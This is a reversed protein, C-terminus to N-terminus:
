LIKKKRPKPHFISNFVTPFRDCRSSRLWNRVDPNMWELLKVITEYRQWLELPQKNIPEHHAIRNRLQRIKTFEERIIKINHNSSTTNPFLTHTYPFWFEPEYAKSFLSTWFGFMLEAVVAGSHVVKKDAILKEVAKFVDGRSNRDLLYLLKTDRFWDRGYKDVLVVEFQNRLVIELQQLVPYLAECLQINEGYRKFIKPLSHGSVVYSSVRAVSIGKQAKRYNVRPMIPVQITPETNVFYHLGLLRLENVGLDGM